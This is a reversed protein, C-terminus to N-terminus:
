KSKGASATKDDDDDGIVRAIASLSFRLKTGTSDDVRVTVREADRQVNTVVGYIGGITVVHDSEKINSLMKQFDTEKRKQPRLMFFYMLLGFGAVMFLIRPLANPDSQADAAPAANEALLFCSTLLHIV